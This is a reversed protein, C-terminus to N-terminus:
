LWVRSVGSSGGSSSGVGSAVDVAALCTASVQSKKWASLCLYADPLSADSCCGGAAVETDCAAIVALWSSCAPSLDAAPKASLCTSLAAVEGAVEPCLSGYETDCSVSAAHVSVFTAAAALLFKM